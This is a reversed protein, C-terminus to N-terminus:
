HVVSVRQTTQTDCPAVVRGEGVQLDMATLSQKLARRMEVERLAALSLPVGEIELKTSVETSGLPMRTTGGVSTVGPIGEIKAFLQDYFPVIGAQARAPVNIKLTLLHESAFGPNVHMVAVFSRLLLGAGATLMVALALEAVVLTSRM